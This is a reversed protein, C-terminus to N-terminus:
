AVKLHSLSFVQHQPLALSHKAVNCWNMDLVTMYMFICSLRAPLYVQTCAKIISDAALLGFRKSLMEAFSCGIHLEHLYTVEGGSDYRSAVLLNAKLPRGNRDLFRPDSLLQSGPWADYSYSGFSNSLKMSVRKSQPIRSM